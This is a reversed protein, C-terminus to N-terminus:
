MANNFYDFIDSFHHHQDIRVIRFFADDYFNYNNPKTELDAFRVKDKQKVKLKLNNVFELVIKNIRVLKNFSSVNGPDVLQVGDLSTFGVEVGSVNSIVIKPNPVEVKLIDESCDNDFKGTLFKPGLVYNTKILHKHSMPRTVCDAPNEIGSVFSFEVSHTNCIKSINELRNLVFVSRKQMKDLKLILANM